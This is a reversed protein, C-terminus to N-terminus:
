SRVLIAAKHQGKFYTKSAAATTGKSSYLSFTDVSFLKKEINVQLQIDVLSYEFQQM